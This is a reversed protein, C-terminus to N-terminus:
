QGVRGALLRMFKEFRILDHVAAIQVIDRELYTNVYNKYYEFPSHCLWEGYNNFLCNTM